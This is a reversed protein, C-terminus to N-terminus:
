KDGRDSAAGPARGRAWATAAFARLERTLPHDPDQLLFRGAVADLAEERVEQPIQAEPPEEVGEVELSEVEFSTCLRLDRETLERGRPLLLRGRSDHVPAALVAGPSAASLPIM